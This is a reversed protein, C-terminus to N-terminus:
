LTRQLYVNIIAWSSKEMWDSPYAGDAIINSKLATNFISM